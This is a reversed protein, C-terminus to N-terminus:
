VAGYVPTSLAVGWHMIQWSIAQASNTGKIGVQKLSWNVFSSCWATEDNPAKGTTSHYEIVRKNHM